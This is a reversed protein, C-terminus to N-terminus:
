AVSAEPMPKFEGCWYSSKSNAGVWAYIDPRPQEKAIAAEEYPITPPMRHCSGVRYPEGDDEEADSFYSWFYCKSCEEGGPGAM